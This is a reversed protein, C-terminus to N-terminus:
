VIQRHEEAMVAAERLVWAIILLLGGLLAAAIEGDSASIALMRQGPPNARTLWVTVLADGLPRLLVLALVSVAFRQLLRASEAELVRGRAFGRFMRLLSLLGWIVVAGPIMSIAFGGARDLLSLSELMEPPLPLRADPLDEIMSWVVALTIPLLAACLACLGMMVQSLRRIRRLRDM